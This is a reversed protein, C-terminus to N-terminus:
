SLSKYFTNSRTVGDEVYKIIVKIRYTNSSSITFTHIHEITSIKVTKTSSSVNSYSSGSKKQLYITSTISSSGGRSAVIHARAKTSSTKTFSLACNASSYPEIAGIQELEDAPILPETEGTDAFATGSLAFLAAIVFAFLKTKKLM